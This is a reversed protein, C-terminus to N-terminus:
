TLDLIALAQAWEPNDLSARNDLGNLYVALAELDSRADALLEEYHERDARLQAAMSTVRRRGAPPAVPRRRLRVTSM